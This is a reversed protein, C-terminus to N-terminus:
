KLRRAQERATLPREIIRVLGMRLPDNGRVRSCPFDQGERGRMGDSDQRESATAGDGGARVVNGTTEGGFM